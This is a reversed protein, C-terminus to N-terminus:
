QGWNSEIIVIQLILTYLLKVSNDGVGYAKLKALMLPQYLFDFAKSM